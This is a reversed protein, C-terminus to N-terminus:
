RVLLNYLKAKDTEYNYNILILKQQGSHSYLERKSYCLNLLIIRFSHINMLLIRCLLWTPFKLCLKIKRLM